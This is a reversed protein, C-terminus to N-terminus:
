PIRVARATVGAAGARMHFYYLGAPAPRGCADRGDWYLHHIGPSVEPADLLAIVLRGASDLVHLRVRGPCAVAYSLRLDGVFPSEALSLSVAAAPPQGAPMSALADYRIWIPNTYARHGSAGDATLLEARLYHPGDLSFEDLPLHADGSYGEGELSPDWGALLTTAASTGAWLRIQAVPGFEPLSAWRLVLHGGTAAVVGADGIRLDGEGYWDGDGNADIGIELFPGDTIVSRGARHAALLEAIPPLAGPGYPGPVYVVTQVKGIANDTAYNDLSLYTAYNFDGHADSGGALFVKRPEGGSGSELNARLAADWLEIGALLEHPYPNGPASGADFDAWPDNQDTSTRTERTNWAELGIFGSYALAATLDMGGWPAGDVGWDIGGWEAALSSLPHAAYAFGEPALQALGDPLTPTVPREGFAGSLPSALYEPNYGLCHITKQYSDSDVSALNLEVGRYLRLGPGDFEAIDAGLGGWSSGYAFVDRVFTATGSASQHTYEWEHTAYSYTGDGTEDLDCSHDTITLWHLGVAQAALRVAPLPAGFEAINNTYMSHCHTDGGYWGAPWPFPGSGVHVRLYRTETYNFWNDRYYISVKLQIADGAQYGLNAPTLLAGDPLSPHGETVESIYAWYDQESPDDGITEDGFDHNWLPVSGGATVDWCCIWHLERIDDVDCDKLVITLPIPTEVDQVRWPADMIFDKAYTNDYRPHPLERQGPGADRGRALDPVGCLLLGCLLLGCLLYGRQLAAPISGPIPLRSM